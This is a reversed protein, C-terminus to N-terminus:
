KAAPLEGNIYKMLTTQFHRVRSDQYHGLEMLGDKMAKMGEQVYPLNAMDQDFVNALQPGMIDNAWAFPEDDPIYTPAVARPREQGKPTPFLLRIEMICWDPTAGPLWRYVLTPLFGIWPAFNPFINYTFNDLIETDSADSYDYGYNEAFGKRGAEALVKRAGLPDEADYGEVPEESANFRRNTKADAGGSFENMKELVYDSNKGKVHPSLVGSPTIARNFHDGILDYRTNADGLFALLQPHTTISHWAEMFAEATAKWNAPIKKQVWMGTYRNGFDYREYHSAAPGLWTKFDPLAHNETLMVFGQWLEVRAQPLDMDKGELHKFDWSCPIEKLSGDNRWTFGHFPCRLQVSAGSETRLKRGRHLCANYFAKVSGDKQRILLFSKGAIDFVVTDGPEPMEDERAAFLWVNPWMKEREARAFEESIYPAVPLPDDGMEIHSEEFLYDPARRTDGNLMDTYSIGPCRDGRAIDKIENM